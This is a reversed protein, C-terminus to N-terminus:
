FTEKHAFSQMVPDKEARKEAWAQIQRILPLLEKGNDTLTYEVKPPVQHYVERHVLDDAELERLTQTLMKTTIGAILRKLEGYRLVKNADILWVIRGKYKGGIRKFGYEITCGAYM